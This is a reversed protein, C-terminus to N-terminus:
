FRYHFTAIVQRPPIYETYAIGAAYAAMTRNNIGNTNALNTAAVGVDWQADRPQYQMSLNFQQYSPVWDTQPNNFVRSWFGGRFLAEARTILDAGTPLPFTDTLNVGASFKSLQPPTNDYIDQAASARAAYYAPSNVAVGAAAAATGANAAATIDLAEFHDPFNGDLATANAGLRLGYGLLWDLEAEMGWINARPINDIGHQNPVPDEQIFQMNRYKMYFADVNVTLRNDLLRNKSGVELSDVTESKVVIPVQLASVGSNVGGPKYGRSWSVYLMNNKTLDYEVAAKGTTDHTDSARSVEAGWFASSWGSYNDKNYRAGTVLRLVDSAHYTLQFFPAWSHRGIDTLSEYALNSPTPGSYSEPLVPIPQGAVRGTYTLTYERAQSSLYFGGAVLDALHEWSRSLTIEQIWTSTDNNWAVVDRYSGLIDFASRTSDYSIDNVLDQYSTTSKLVFWPSNWDVVLAGLDFTRNTKGPFDQSLVRPDPNPDTLSKEAAAHQDSRYRQGSLTVSLGEVPRWLATIRGNTNQANDEDYGPV